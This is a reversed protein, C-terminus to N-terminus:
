LLKCNDVNVYYLNNRGTVYFGNNAITLNTIREPFRIAGYNRGSPSYCHLLQDCCFWINGKKDVKMGDPIDLNNVLIQQNSVSINVPDFDFSYVKGPGGINSDTVYLKTKDNSITIGNPFALNDILSKITGTILNLAYVRNAPQPVPGLIGFGPILRGIPPDTFILNDNVIILDNPSNLDLGNYQSVLTKTEYPDSLKSKYVFGDGACSYIYDGYVLNGNTHPTNIIVNVIKQSKICYFILAKSQIDSFILQNKKENFTVGEAFRFGPVIKEVYYYKGLINNLYQGDDLTLISPLVIPIVTQLHLIQEKKM